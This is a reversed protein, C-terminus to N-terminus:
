ESCYDRGEQKDGNMDATSHFPVRSGHSSDSSDSITETVCCEIRNNECELTPGGGFLKTLTAILSGM